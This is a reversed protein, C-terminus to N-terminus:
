KQEKLDMGIEEIKKLRYNVGSKGLPKSMKQGLEQLTIEKYKLRLNAIEQLNEPLSNIGKKKKIFKIIEIQRQATDYTKQFNATECNVKRHLDNSLQKQAKINEVHLLASHAGMLNLLDVIKESNKVYVVQMKKREIIKAYIDYFALMKAFKQAFNVDTISFELHYQKQPNSISGCGLFTGRLYAKKSEKKSVLNKSINEILHLGDDGWEIINLRELIENAGQENSINLYYINTKKPSKFENIRIETSTQFINKILTFIKRAVSLNETSVSFALKNPGVIRLAGTTRLLASLEAVQADMDEPIIKALESKVTASFSM